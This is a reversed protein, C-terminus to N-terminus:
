VLTAGEPGFEYALGVFSVDTAVPLERTTVTVSMPPQGQADLVKTGRPLTLVALGDQSIVQVDGRLIGTDELRGRLPVTRM